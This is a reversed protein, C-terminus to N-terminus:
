GTPGTSAPGAGCLSAPTVGHECVPASAGHRAAPATQQSSGPAKAAHEWSNSGTHVQMCPGQSHQPCKPISPGGYGFEGAVGHPPVDSVVVHESGPASQQDTCESM